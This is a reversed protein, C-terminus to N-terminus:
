MRKIVGEVNKWRYSDITKGNANMVYVVTNECDVNLNDNSNITSFNAYNRMEDTEEFYSQNFSECDIFIEQVKQDSDKSPYLVFKLIM